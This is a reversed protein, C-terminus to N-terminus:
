PKSEYRKRISEGHAHLGEIESLKEAIPGIEKLGDETVKLTTQLKLFDKVSLGGTYRSTTNTPLTHNLGSSYDGLAEASYKGVFLSGYNHLEKSYKESERIHIELHEPGRKNALEIGDNIDNLLIILGQRNLSLQAIPKTNLLELQVKIENLVLKALRESTTALIPVADVDHEAQSLLDAAVIKAEATEDAIIMIETQGAIFDIGTNGFVEKKAFQVYKNGPGVIKDVKKVTETGYALAAIAQAGGLKYIETIKLLYAVSLILPHINGEFTPPSAVAIEHVGAVQAPIACMLFTSVLPFNGGPVYVGVRKIPNITQGTVVGKKIEFEFNKFQDKQRKSFEKINESAKEITDIEDKSAEKYANEIEIASIKIQDLEVNDFQKTYKKLAKDGNKRVDNIIKRSVKIEEIEKYKFFDEEIENYKIVKL